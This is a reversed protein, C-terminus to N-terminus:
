RDFFGHAKLLDKLPREKWHWTDEDYFGYAQNEHERKVDFLFPESCITQLVKSKLLKDRELPYPDGTAVYSESGYEEIFEDLNRPVSFNATDRWYAKFTKGSNNIGRYDELVEFELKALDVVEYEDGPIEFFFFILTQLINASILFRM